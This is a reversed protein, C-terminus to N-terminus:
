RFLPAFYQYQYEVPEVVSIADINIVGGGASVLRLTHLGDLACLPATQLPLGPGPMYQSLTSLYIDDLYIDIKGYQKGATFHLSACRGQFFFVAFDGTEDTSHLTGNLATGSDQAEWSGEYFVMGGSDDHQGLGAPAPMTRMGSEASSLASCNAEYCSRVQYNYSYGPIAATDSFAATDATAVLRRVGDPLLTRYIEYTPIDAVAEWTLMIGSSQDDSALLGGPVGVGRWGPESPSPTSCYSQSCAKVRYYYTLGPPVGTDDFFAESVTAILDGQQDASTSRYVQYSSIDPIPEWSIHIRDTLSGDSASAHPITISRWGTDYQSFPSCHDSTCARVRFYYLPGPAISMDTFSSMETTSILFYTDDYHSGFYVEYFEAEPIDTWNLVIRDDYDGNSVVLNAPPGIWRWGPESRSSWGCIENRCAKVQYYYVKEYLGTDDFFKLDSTTGILKKETGDDRYIEYYEAQYVAMWNLQVGEIYRGESCYYLYPGGLIALASKVEGFPSCGLYNCARVRYYYTVSYEATKDHFTTLNTRTLNSGVESSSTSRFVEYTTGNPYGSPNWTVSIAYPPDPFAEVGTPVSPIGPPHWGGDHLSHISSCGNYCSAVSYYYVQDPQGTPDEYLNNVSYGIFEYIGDPFDSRFVQYGTANAITDWTIRVLGAITGDTAAVSTPVAAGLRGSTGQSFGGCQDQFCARVEYYYEFDLVAAFDDFITTNSEGIFEVPDPGIKKGYIQYTEADVVPEWTIKIKDAYTYNSARVMAPTELYRWGSEPSSYNGCGETKCAVVRYYYLVGHHPPYDTYKTTSYHLTAIKSGVEDPNESRYLEFSTAMPQPNWEIVIKVLDQGDSALLGNPPVPSASYLWGTDMRPLSCGASSCAKLNYYLVRDPPANFDEFQNGTFSGLLEGLEDQTESRYLNYFAAGTVTYSWSITVKDPYTNNSAILSSPMPLLSTGTDHPSFESCRFSNCAKIRYYYTKFLEAPFDYYSDSTEGATGIKDGTVEASDSRYIEYFTADFNRVWSLKVRSTGDGDSATFNQPFPLPNPLKRGTRQTSYGSCNTGNCARVTYYINIGGPVDLDDFFLDGTTAILDGYDSSSTSRYIKYDVAAYSASWSLRIKDEYTKNSATFDAPAQLYGRYFTRPETFDSEPCGPIGSYAFVKWTRATGVFDFLYSTNLTNIYSTNFTNTYTNDIQLLYGNNNNNIGTWSLEIQSSFITEGPEPSLLSPIPTATCDTVGSTAAGWASFNDAMGKSIRVGCNSGPSCNPALTNYAHVAIAYYHSDTGQYWVPAGSQGGYTDIAYNLFYSGKVGLPDNDTWMTGYTKDGPYGTLNINGIDELYADSFYGYDFWGVSNGLNGNPLRIYAYDYEALGNNVWGNVSGWGSAMQSSYPESNGNKGPIVRISDAWGSNDGYTTYVCHGATIVLDPGAFWGTCTTQGFWFTAELMVVMSWPLSTTSTVRTRDDTGIVTQAGDPGAPPQPVIAVGGPTGGVVSEHPDTDNVYHVGSKRDTNMMVRNTLQTSADNDTGQWRHVHFGEAPQATLVVVTGPQYLGDECNPESALPPEGMGGIVELTLAFCGGPEVPQVAEQLNFSLLNSSNSESILVELAQSPNVLAAQVGTGTLGTSLLILLILVASFLPHHLTAKMSHVGTLTRPFIAKISLGM